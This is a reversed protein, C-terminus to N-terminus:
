TLARNSLGRHWPKGTELFYVLYQAIEKPTAGVKGSYSGVLTEDGDTTYLQFRITRDKVASSRVEHPGLSWMGRKPDFRIALAPMRERMAIDMAM